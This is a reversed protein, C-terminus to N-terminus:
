RGKYHYKGGGRLGWRRDHGAGRPGFEVRHVRWRALTAGPRTSGTTLQLLDHGGRHQRGFRRNCRRYLSLHNAKAGDDMTVNKVEVFNGIHVDAAWDDCGAAVPSLGSRRARASGVARVSKTTMAKWHCNAKIEVGIALTVGPGFFVNPELVVDRGIVTDYSLWVTEPAIMTVGTRCRGEAARARRGSRRRCPALQDRSNVGLVEDEACTVVGASGGTAARSRLRM